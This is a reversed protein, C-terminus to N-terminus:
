AIEMHIDVSRVSHTLAGVSILDVGTAAIERIKELKVGGSAETLCRHDILKVGERLQEVSMNDLLICDVGVSLCEPIQDLCDVEVEIKLLHHATKRALTVAAEIGGAIKLHNDKILIGDRM